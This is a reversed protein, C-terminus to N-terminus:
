VTDLRIAVGDSVSLVNGSEDVLLDIEEFRSPDYIIRSQCYCAGFLENIRKTLKEIPTNQYIAPLYITYDWAIRGIPEGVTDTGIIFSGNQIVENKIELSSLVFSLVDATGKRAWIDVGSYANKLLARKSNVSWSRDWFEETFGFLPALFDLWEPDCRVPDIQREVDKIKELLYVLEQDWFYTVADSIEDQM